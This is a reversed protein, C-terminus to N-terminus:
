QSDLHFQKFILTAKLVRPEPPASVCENLFDASLSWGQRGGLDSILAHSRDRWTWKGLDWFDLIWFNM